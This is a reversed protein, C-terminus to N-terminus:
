KRLEIRQKVIQCFKRIFQVINAFMNFLFLYILVLGTESNYAFKLEALDTLPIMVCLSIYVIAENFALM